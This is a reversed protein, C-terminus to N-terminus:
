GGDRRRQEIFALVDEAKYRVGALKVFPLLRRRKASTRWIALTSVKIRLLEAVEEPKLLRPVEVTAELM